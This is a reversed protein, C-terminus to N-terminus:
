GVYVTEAAVIANLGVKQFYTEKESKEGVLFIKRIIENYCRRVVLNADGM